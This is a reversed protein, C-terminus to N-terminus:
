CFDGTMVNCGTADHGSSAIRMATVFPGVYMEGGAVTHWQTNAGWSRRGRATCLGYALIAITLKSSHKQTTRTTDKELVYIEHM